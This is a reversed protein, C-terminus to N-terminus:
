SAADSCLLPRILARHRLLAQLVARLVTIHRFPPRHSSTFREATHLSSGSPKSGVSVGNKGVASRNLEVSAIRAM